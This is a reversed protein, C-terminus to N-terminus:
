CFTFSIIQLFHFCNGINANHKFIMKVRFCPLTCDSTLFHPIYEYGYQYGFHLGPQVEFFRSIYISYDPMNFFAYIVVLPFSWQCGLGTGGAAGMLFASGTYYDCERSRPPLRYPPTTAFFRLWSDGFPLFFLPPTSLSWFTDRLSIYFQDQTILRLVLFIFGCFTFIVAPTGSGDSSESNVRFYLPPIHSSSGSYIVM